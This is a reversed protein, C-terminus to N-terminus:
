LRGIGGDELGELRHEIAGIDAGATDDRQLREAGIPCVEIRVSVGENGIADERGLALKQGKRPKVFPLSSDGPNRKPNM